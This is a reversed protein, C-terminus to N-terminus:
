SLSRTKLYSNLSFGHTVANQNRHPAGGKNGLANKNGLPAGVKKTHVSKKAPAGKKRQWGHRQKWSKINNVSVEYKEALDKYKMSKVYIRIRWYTSKLWRCESGGGKSNLQKSSVGELSGRIWTSLRGNREQSKGRFCNCPIYFFSV